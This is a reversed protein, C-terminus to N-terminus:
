SSPVAGDSSPQHDVTIGEPDATDAFGSFRQRWGTQSPCSPFRSPATCGRLLQDKRSFNGAEKFGPLVYMKDSLVCYDKSVFNLIKM